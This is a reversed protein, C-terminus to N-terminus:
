LLIMLNTLLIIFSPFIWFFEFTLSNMLNMVTYECNKVSHLKELLRNFLYKTNFKCMYINQKELKVVNNVFLKTDILM